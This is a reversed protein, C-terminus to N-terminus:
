KLTELRPGEILDNLVEALIQGMYEEFQIVNNIGKTHKIISFFHKAETLLFYKKHNIFVINVYM